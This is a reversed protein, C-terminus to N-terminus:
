RGYRERMTKRWKAVRIAEKQAKLEDEIEQSLLFLPLSSFGTGGFKPNAPGDINRMVREIKREVKYMLDTINWLERRM